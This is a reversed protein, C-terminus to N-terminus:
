PAGFARTHVEFTVETDQGNLLKNLATGYTHGGTKTIIFHGTPIVWKVPTLKKVASASAKTVERDDKSKLTYEVSCTFTHTAGTPLSSKPVAMYIYSYWTQQAANAFSSRAAPSSMSTGSGSVVSGTPTKVGLLFAGQPNGNAISCSMDTDFMQAGTPVGWSFWSVYTYNEPNAPRLSAPFSSPYTDYVGVNRVQASTVRASTDLTSDIRNSTRTLVENNDGVISAYAIVPESVYENINGNVATPSINTYSLDFWVSTAASLTRTNTIVIRDPYSVYAWPARTNPAIPVDGCSINGILAGSRNRYIQRPVTLEVEGPLYNHQGSFAASLRFTISTDATSSYRLSLRSASNDLYSDKTIWEVSLSEIKSGNPQEPNDSVATARSMNDLLDLSLFAPINEDDVLVPHMSSDYVPEIYTPCGKANYESMEAFLSPSIEPVTALEADSGNYPEANVINNRDALIEEMEPSNTVSKSDPSPAAAWSAYLIIGDNQKSSTEFEDNNESILSLLDIESGAATLVKGDSIEQGPLIKDTAVSNEVQGEPSIPSLTWGDFVYGDLSYKCESVRSSVPAEDISSVYVSQSDMNGVGTNGDYTISFSSAGESASISSSQLSTSAFAAAPMPVSSVALVGALVTSIMRPVFTKASKTSSIMSVRM